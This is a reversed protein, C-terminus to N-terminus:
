ANSVPHGLAYRRDSGDQYGMLLSELFVDVTNPFTAGCLSEFRLERLPRPPLSHPFISSKKFFKGSNRRALGHGDPGFLALTHAM